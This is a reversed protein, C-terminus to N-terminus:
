MVQDPVAFIKYVPLTRFQYRQRSWIVPCKKVIKQSPAFLFLLNRQLHKKVVEDHIKHMLVYCAYGYFLREYPDSSPRHQPERLLTRMQERYAVAVDDGVPLVLCMRNFIKIERRLKAYGIHQLPLRVIKPRITHATKTEILWYRNRHTWWWCVSVLCFASACLVFLM